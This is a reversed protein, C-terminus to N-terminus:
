AQADSLKPASRRSKKMALLAVAVLVATITEIIGFFVPLPIRPSSTPVPAVPSAAAVHVDITTTHPSSGGTATITITYDGVISSNCTLTTEDSPQLNTPSLNRLIGVPAVVTFSVPRAFGNDPTIVIRTTAPSGAEINISRYIASTRFDPISVPTVVVSVM